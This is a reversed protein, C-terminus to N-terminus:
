ERFWDLDGYKSINKVAADALKRFYGIEVSDGQDLEQVVAAEKWLFGKSGTAAHYV